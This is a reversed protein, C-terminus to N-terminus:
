FQPSRKELFASIGESKEPRTFCCAFAATESSLGASLTMEDAERCLRKAESVAVPGCALIAKAAKAIEGDLEDQEVVRSVLGLSYADDANLTRGKGCTLMDLAVPLGVRKVLRQTGGFGPILGLNVEPQGM